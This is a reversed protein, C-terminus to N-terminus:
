FNMNKNMAANLNKTVSPNEDKYKLTQNLLEASMVRTVKVYPRITNDDYGKLLGYDTMNKIYEQAWQPVLYFDAYESNKTSSVDPKITNHLMAIAELRTLKDYPRLYINGSEAVGKIIGADFAAKAQLNLWAPIDQADAFPSSLDTYRSVDLKLASVIYMIMDARTLQTDPHFFYRSGIKEGLLVDDDALKIASTEGWHGVMDAYKFGKPTPTPTPSPAPEEITVTVESTDNPYGEASVTFTFVDDGIEDTNPTYTFEGPITESLVIQGKAPPSAIVYTVALPPDTVPVKCLLKGSAPTNKLTSLTGPLAEFEKTEEVLTSQTEKIEKTKFISFISFVSKPKTNTVLKVDAAFAISNILIASIIVISFKKM